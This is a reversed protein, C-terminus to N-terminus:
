SVCMEVADVMFGFGTLDSKRCVLVNSGHESEVFVIYQTAAASQGIIVWAIAEKTTQHM